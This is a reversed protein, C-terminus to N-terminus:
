AAVTGTMGWPAADYGPLKRIIVDTLAILIRHPLSWNWDDRECSQYELSQILKLAALPSTKVPSHRFDDATGYSGVDHYLHECSAINAGLLIRGIDTLDKRLDYIPGRNEGSAAQVYLDFHPGGAAATLIANIHDDTVVFASM